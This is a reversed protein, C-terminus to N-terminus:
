YNHLWTKLYQKTTYTQLNKKFTTMTTNKLHTPVANWAKISTYFTGEQYQQLKHKPFNLIRKETARNKQFSQQKLYLNQINEPAKEELAKKVHVALNIKRKDALPIMELKKLAQTSSTSKGLGLMSKAAYNQAQQIKNCNSSGCNNWINWIIDAYLFNPTVLSAYLIRRQKM